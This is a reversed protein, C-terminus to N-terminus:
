RYFSKVKAWTSSRAPSAACDGAILAGPLTCDQGFSSVRLHAQFPENDSRRVFLGTNMDGPTTCYQIPMTCVADPPLTFTFKYKGPVVMTAILDTNGSSSSKVRVNLTPDTGNNACDLVQDITLEYTKGQEVDWHQVGPGTPGSVCGQDTALVSILRADARALSPTALAAFALLVFLPHRNM